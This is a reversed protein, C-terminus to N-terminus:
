GVGIPVDVGTVGAFLSVCIIVISMELAPTHVKDEQAM